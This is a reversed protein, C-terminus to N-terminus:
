SREVGTESTPDPLLYVLLNAIVMAIALVYFVAALGWIDAIVGGALPVLASFGSQTGFLLSVATGSMGPPALDMAWSHIVPRVSFLAFGLLAVLAIFLIPSSVLTLTIMILTTASICGFVVPQRGIRDSATGAIPGAIMGGIQMSMLVVGMVVPSVKLIDALYLPLFFLLGSQTMSRFGAMLCLGLVVRNRILGGVRTFYDRLGSGTGDNGAHLGDGRGLVALLLLAVAIAPVANVFSTAQWSTSALLVGAALPALTDGLSAGLTHISLAYGRNNPFRESLFAIAAPHWLNNTIGILIVLPLLWVAEGVLGVAMLAAAGVLLSVSQITVHRVGVDVVTGSGINAAFSAAHFVTVLAGAQAYTLGLDDRISPLLVYFTGIIWHTAGHGAAVLFTPGQGKWQLGTMREIAALM